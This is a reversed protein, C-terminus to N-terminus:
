SILLQKQSLLLTVAVLSLQICNVWVPKMVEKRLEEFVQERQIGANMRHLYFPILYYTNPKGPPRTTPFEVVLRCFLSEIGPGPLDWMSLLLQAQLGCRSFSHELAQSGCSGLGCVQLGHQTLPSAIVTLLGHVAIFLLGLVEAQAVVEQTM